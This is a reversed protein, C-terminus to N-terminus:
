MTLGDLAGNLLVHPVFEYEYRLICYKYAYLPRIGGTRYKLRSVFSLM